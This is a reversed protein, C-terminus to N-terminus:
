SQFGEGSDRKWQRDFPLKSVGKAQLAKGAHLFCYIIQQTVGTGSMAGARQSQSKTTLFSSQQTPCLSCHSMLWYSCEWNNIWQCPLSSSGRSDTLLPKQQARSQTISQRKTRRSHPFNRVRSDSLPVSNLNVNWTNLDQCLKGTEWSNSHAWWLGRKNSSFHIITQMLISLTQQGLDPDQLLLLTEVCTRFQATLEWCPEPPGAQSNLNTSSSSNEKASTTDCVTHCPQYKSQEWESDLRGRRLITSDKLNSFSDLIM